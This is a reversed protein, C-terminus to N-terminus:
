LPFRALDFASVGRVGDWVLFNGYERMTAVPVGALEAVDGLMRQFRFVAAPGLKNVVGVMLRVLNYRFLASCPLVRHGDRLRSFVAAHEPHAARYRACVEESFHGRYRVANRDFSLREDSIAFEGTNYTSTRLLDGWPEILAREFHAAKRELRAALAPTPLFSGHPGRMDFIWPPPTLTDAKTLVFTLKGLLRGCADQDAGALLMALCRADATTSRSDAHIAWIVVDSELLKALYMAVYPANESLSEGMGPMDWFTLMHDSNGPISIARPECTAPKVDGVPLSTGFLANLLSSKGVGTQGMIAVSLPRNSEAERERRVRRRVKELGREDLAGAPIRDM